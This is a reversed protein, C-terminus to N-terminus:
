LGLDELLAQLSADDAVPIGQQLRLVDGEPLLHTYIDYVQLPASAGSQYVAVRGGEDRLTYRPAPSPRYLDALFWALCLALLLASFICISWYWLKRM